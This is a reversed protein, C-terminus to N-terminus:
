NVPEVIPVTQKPTEDQQFKYIVLALANGAEETQQLRLLGEIVEQEVEGKEKTIKKRLEIEEM